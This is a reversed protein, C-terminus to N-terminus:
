NTEIKMGIPKTSTTGFFLLVTIIIFGNTPYNVGKNPHSPRRGGRAWGATIQLTWSGRGSSNRLQVRGVLDYFVTVDSSWYMKWDMATTQKSAQLIRTFYFFFYTFLRNIYRMSTFGRIRQNNKGVSSPPNRANRSSHCPVKPNRVCKATNCCGGTRSRHWCLAVTVAQQYCKIVNIMSSRKCCKCTFTDFAYECRFYKITTQTIICRQLWEPVILARLHKKHLPFFMQNLTHKDNNKKWNRSQM